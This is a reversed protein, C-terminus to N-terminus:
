YMLEVAMNKGKEFRLFVKFVNKGNQRGGHVHIYKSVNQVGGRGGMGEGVGERVGEGVGEGV